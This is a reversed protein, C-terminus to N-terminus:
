VQRPQAPRQIPLPLGLRLQLHRIRRGADALRGHVHRGGERRLPTPLGGDTLSVGPAPPRSALRSFAADATGPWSRRM